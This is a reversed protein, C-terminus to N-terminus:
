VTRHHHHIKAMKKHPAAKGAKKAKPKLKAKHVAKKSIKHKAPAMKHAKGVKAKAQAPKHAKPTRVVPAPTDTGVVVATPDEAAKPAAQALGASAALALAFLATLIKPM